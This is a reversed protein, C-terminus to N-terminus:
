IDLIVVQILLDEEIDQFCFPNGRSDPCFCHAVCARGVQPPRANRDRKSPTSGLERLSHCVDGIHWHLQCSSAESANLHRRKRSHALEHVSHGMGLTHLRTSASSHRLTSLRISITVIFITRLPPPGGWCHPNVSIIVLIEASLKSIAIDPFAMSVLQYDQAAWSSVPVSLSAVNRLMDLLNQPLVRRCPILTVQPTQLQLKTSSQPIWLVTQNWSGSQYQVNRSSRNWGEIIVICTPTPAQEKRGQVDAM